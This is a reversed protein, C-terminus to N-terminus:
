QDREVNDREKLTERLCAWLLRGVEDPRCVEPLRLDVRGDLKEEIILGWFAVARCSRSPASPGDDFCTREPLGPETM